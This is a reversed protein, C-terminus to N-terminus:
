IRAKLPSVDFTDWFERGSYARGLEETSRPLAQVGEEVMLEFVWKAQDLPARDVKRKGGGEAKSDAWGSFLAWWDYVFGDTLMWRQGKAKEWQGVVALVARAVDIGHIMHLSKKGRVEEKTKAVREVWNKPDREGGWLGALNMVAGGLSLLEDEAIARPMTTNYPSHRSVWTSNQPVQWIGSSGLQIFQLKPAQTHYVNSYGHVLTKSQNHGTLPFTVLITKALPLKSFQSSTSSDEVESPEFSWKITDVGAVTRGDRTTAACILNRAQLLPILFTNTWGAGLILIDFEQM